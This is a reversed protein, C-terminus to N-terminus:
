KPSEQERVAKPRQDSAKQYEPLCKAIKAAIAQDANHVVARANNLWATAGERVCWDLAAREISTQAHVPSALLFTLIALKKM